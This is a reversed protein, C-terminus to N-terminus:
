EGYYRIKYYKQDGVTMSSYSQPKGTYQNFGRNVICFDFNKGKLENEIGERVDSAIERDIYLETDRLGKSLNEQIKKLQFEVENKIREERANANFKFEM